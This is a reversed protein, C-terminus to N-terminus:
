PSETQFMPYCCYLALYAALKRWHILLSQDITALVKLEFVWVKLTTESSNKVFQGCYLFAM